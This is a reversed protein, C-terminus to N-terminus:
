HKEDIINKYINYQAVANKNRDHREAAVKRMITNDYGQSEKFTDVIYKALMKVEEFRYTKGCNNNPILDAVGGVYSSICPVGLLQAECISNSSNEISSPCVFVNCKLYEQKMDEASLPNLFVIHKELRYKKIIVKIIRGYCSMLLRRKIGNAATINNGGIKIVADPYERLVLPMAKLVMHLGKLPYSAQSLFITHKECSNYEWCGSYFEERLIENCHYYKARPNITWTHSKDWKTRGIIHMTKEIMPIEVSKGRKCYEKKLHFLTRSKLLEFLSTHTIIEWTTLGYNYYQGIVSTLGQISVVTKADPCSNIFALGHSFETGHIHVIDPRVTKYIERWCPEYEKNYETNGKGVPLIFYVIRKGEVRTVSDVSSSVTAVSLCIDKEKLLSDALGLMWGGSSKFTDNGTMLATAEPFLINTIWLVKM